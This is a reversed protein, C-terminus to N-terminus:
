LSKMPNPYKAIVVAGRKAWALKAEKKVERKL